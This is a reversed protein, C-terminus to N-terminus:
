TRSQKKWAMQHNITKWSPLLAALAMACTFQQKGTEREKVKENTRRNSKKCTSWHLCWGLFGDCWSAMVRPSAMWDTSQKERKGCTYQKKKRKKQASALQKNPHCHPMPKIAASGPLLWLWQPWQHQVPLLYITTKRKRKNENLRGEGPSAMWPQNNKRRKGCNKRYLLWSNKIVVHPMPEMTANIEWWRPSAM